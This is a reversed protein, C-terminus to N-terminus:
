HNALQISIKIILALIALLILTWNLGINGFEKAIKNKEEHIPLHEKFLTQAENEPIGYEIMKSIVFKRGKTNYFLFAERIIEQRGQKMATLNKHNNADIEDLM